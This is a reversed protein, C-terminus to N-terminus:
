ARCDVDRPGMRLLQWAMVVEANLAQLFQDLKSLAVIDVLAFQRISARATNRWAYNLEMLFNCDIEQLSGGIMNTRRFRDFNSCIVVPYRILYEDGFKGHPPHTLHQLNGLGILAGVCQNLAMYIPEREDNQLGSGSRSQFLKAVGRSAAAIDYHHLDCYNKFFPLRSVILEEVKTHDARDFWFVTASSDPIYKCEVILQIRLLRLPKKKRHQNDEVWLQECLLDVERAKDTANDIYYPSVLVQWGAERFLSAVKVHFTNGSNKIIESFPDENVRNARKTTL